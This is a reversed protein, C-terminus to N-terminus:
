FPLNLVYTGHLTSALSGNEVFDCILLKEDKRYYYAVLPLLNPHSLSGMMRMHEDLEERGVNNMYKYRKVVMSKGGMIMARYSSGFTASGLIEASSRLLDDLGFKERDERLFSLKGHEAKRTNGSKEPLNREVVMDTYSAVNVKNKDKSKLSGHAAPSLKKKLYFKFVVAVIVVILLGVIIGILAM